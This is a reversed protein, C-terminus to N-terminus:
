LKSLLKVKEYGFPSRDGYIQQDTMNLGYSLPTKDVVNVGHYQNFKRKSFTSKVGLSM